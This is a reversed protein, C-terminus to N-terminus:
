KMEYDVDITDKDAKKVIKEYVGQPLFIRAFELIKEITLLIEDDGDWYELLISREISNMFRKLILAVLFLDDIQGLFPIADPLFDLPSIVYAVTGLLIAKEQLSVRNDQVMRYLLKVLNPLLMLLQKAKGRASERSYIQSNM